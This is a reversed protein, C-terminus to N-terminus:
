GVHRRTCRSAGRHGNENIGTLNSSPSPLSASITIPSFTNAMLAERKPMHCDICGGVPQVPCSRQKGARNPMRSQFRDATASPLSSHCQLCRPSTGDRATEANTHPNHCTLCDLKGDSEFYCRSWTLTTGQFRVPEPRVRNLGCGRKRQATAIPACGSSPRDPHWRPDPSRSISMAIRPSIRQHWSKSRSQRGARPVTRLWHRSGGGRRGFGHRDRASEHQPMGHLPAFRGALRVQGSLPIRCEDPQPPQGSTIDWGVRDPYHSLRYELAEGEHDHGVLTLGRDGSGFAYDVITQHITGNANTEVELTNGRKQFAHSVKDNGPDALQGNPIPVPPLEDTAISPVPTAARITTEGLHRRPMRRVPSRRCVTVARARSPTFERYALSQALVSETAFSPSAAPKLTRAALCIEPDRDMARLSTSSNALLYPAPGDQLLCRVATKRVLIPDVMSQWEDSMPGLANSPWRPLVPRTTKGPAPDPRADARRPGRPRGITLLNQAEREAESLRDLRFLTQELAVRSEFHDPDLRLAKQWVKTALDVKESRICAQGVLLYDEATM